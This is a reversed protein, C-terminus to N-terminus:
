NCDFYRLCTALLHQYDGSTCEKTFADILDARGGRRLAQRARGMISFANGDKGVLTLKLGTVSGSTAAPQQQPEM